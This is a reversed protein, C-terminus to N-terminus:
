GGTSSPADQAEQSNPSATDSPTGVNDNASEGENTINDDNSLNNDNTPTNDTPPDTNPNTSDSPSPNDELEAQDVIPDADPDINIAFQLLGNSRVLDILRVVEGHAAGRDAAIMAVAKADKKAVEAAKKAILAKTTKEGNLFLRGDKKLVLAISNNDKTEEGTAAKPLNVEIAEKVIYNSAVMFIILLVLMVDVLPTVNIGTIGEDDDLDAGGAM